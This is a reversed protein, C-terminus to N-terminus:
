EEKDTAPSPRWANSRIDAAAGSTYSAGWGFEDRQERNHENDPISALTAELKAAKADLWAAIAEAIERAIRQDGSLEVADAMENGISEVEDVLGMPNEPSWECCCEPAMEGPSRWCIGAIALARRRLTDTERGGIGKLAFLLRRIERGTEDATLSPLPPTVIQPCPAQTSDHVQGCHCQYVTM